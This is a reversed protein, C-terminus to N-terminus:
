LISSIWSKVATTIEQESVFQLATDHELKQREDVSLSRYRSAATKKEKELPDIFKRKGIPCIFVSVHIRSGCSVLIKVKSGDERKLITEQSKPLDYSFAHM